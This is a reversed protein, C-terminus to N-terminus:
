TINRLLENPTAGYLAVFCSISAEYLVIPHTFVSTLLPLAVNLVTTFCTILSDRVSHVVATLVGERISEPNIGSSASGPQMNTTITLLIDEVAADSGQQQTDIGHTDLARRLHQLVIGALQPGTYAPFRVCQHRMDGVSVPLQCESLALVKIRRCSHQLIYLFVKISSTIYLYQLYYSRVQSLQLLNTTLDSDLNSLHHVNDLVIYFCQEKDSIAIESADLLKHIASGVNLAFDVFKSPKKMMNM